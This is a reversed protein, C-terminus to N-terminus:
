KTIVFQLDNSWKDMFKLLNNQIITSNKKATVEGYHVYPMEADLVVKYGLKRISCYLDLDEWWAPFYRDDYGEIKKWVDARFCICAPSVYGVDCIGNLVNNNIIEIKDNSLIVKGGYKLNKLEWDYTSGGILGVLTERELTEVWRDMWYDNIIKVDNSLLVIYKGKAIKATENCNRLYGINEKYHVTIVNDVYHEIDKTEDVSANDGM